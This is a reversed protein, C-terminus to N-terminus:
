LADTSVVGNDSVHETWTAGDWYRFQHRAAPDAHWAAAPPGPLPAPEGVGVPQVNPFLPQVSPPSWTGKLFILWPAKWRLTVLQGAAVDVVISSDGVARMFLYPFYCRVQHRGPSVPIDTVGWPRRVAPGGDLHLRPTCLYLLFALPLFGTIVRIGAAQSYDYSM